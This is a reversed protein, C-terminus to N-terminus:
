EDHTKKKSRYSTLKVIIARDFKEGNDGERRGVRHSRDIENIDLDVGMVKAVGLVLEDTSEGDKELLGNVRILNRRSYMEIDDLKTELQEILHDKVELSDELRSLREDRAKIEEKCDKIEAKLKSIEIKLPNTIIGSLTEVIEPDRLAALLQRRLREGEHDGGTPGGGGAGSGRGGTIVGELSDNLNDSNDTNSRKMEERDLPSGQRKDREM